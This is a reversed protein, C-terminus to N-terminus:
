PKAAKLSNSVTLAFLRRVATIMEDSASADKTGAAAAQLLMSGFVPLLANVAPYLLSGDARRAVAVGAIESLNDAARITIQSDEQGPMAFIKVFAGSLANAYDAVDQQNAISPRVSDAIERIDELGLALQLDREADQNIVDSPRAAQYGNHICPGETCTGDFPGSIEGQTDKNEGSYTGTFRSGSLTLEFSGRYHAENFTGSFTSGQVTGGVTGGPSNWTYRGTVTTGEEQLILDGDVGNESRHWTGTWTQDVVARSPLAFLYGVLLSALCTVLLVRRV